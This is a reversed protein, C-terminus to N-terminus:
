WVSTDTINQSAKCVQCHVTTSVGIGTATQVVYPIRGGEICKSHAEIFDQYAQYEEESQLEAVSFKLRQKLAANEEDHENAIERVIEDRTKHAETYWLVARRSADVIQGYVADALKRAEDEYYPRYAYDMM